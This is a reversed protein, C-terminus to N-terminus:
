SMVINMVTRWLKENIVEGDNKKNYAWIGDASQGGGYM